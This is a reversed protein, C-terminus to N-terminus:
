KRTITLDLYNISNHTEYTPDLKLNDHIQNVHTNIINPQIETTDYIILIDDVYRTYLAIKKTDLLQKIHIDEHYQLFIEATLSSIPSGMSVGKEPYIKNQYTFYNQSLITEM